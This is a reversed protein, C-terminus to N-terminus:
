GGSVHPMFLVEDTEKLPQLVGLRSVQGAVAVVVDPRLKDGQMLADKMGPYREELALILRRVTKGECEVTELGDTFSRM